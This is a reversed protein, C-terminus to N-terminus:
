KWDDFYLSELSKFCTYDKLFNQCLHSSTEYINETQESMSAMIRTEASSLSPSISVIRGLPINLEREKLQPARIIGDDIQPGGGGSIM